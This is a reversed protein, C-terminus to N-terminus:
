GKHGGVQMNREKMTAGEELSMAKLIINKGYKNKLRTVTKQLKIEDNQKIKDEKKEELFKNNDSFLDLQSFNVEKKADKEDIVNCACLNIRRVLLNLFEVYKTENFNKNIIEDYLELCKSTLIKSSSTSYDLTKHGHAPKPVKRGYYDTVIDGDYSFTNDIEYGIMLVISNTM